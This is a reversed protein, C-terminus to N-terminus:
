PLVVRPASAESSGAVLRTALRVYGANRKM